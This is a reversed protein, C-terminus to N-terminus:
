GSQRNGIAHGEELGYLSGLVLVLPAGDDDGLASSVFSSQGDDKPSSPVM